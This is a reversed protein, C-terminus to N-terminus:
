WVCDTARDQNRRGHTIIRGALLVLQKEGPYKGEKPLACPPSTISSTKAKPLPSNSLLSTISTLWSELLELKSKPAVVEKVIHELTTDSLDSNLQLDLGAELRARKDDSKIGVLSPRKKPRKIGMIIDALNLTTIYERSVM